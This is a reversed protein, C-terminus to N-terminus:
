VRSYKLLKDSTDNGEQIAGILNDFKMEMLSYIDGLIKSSNDSTSTTITEAAAAPTYALKDLISNPTLRKILETGDLKATYGTNPGSAVGELYGSVKPTKINAINSAGETTDGVTPVSQMTTPFISGGYVKSEPSKGIKHQWSRDTGPGWTKDDTAASAFDKQRKDVNALYAVAAGEITQQRGTTPGKIYNESPQNNNAKTGTVSQFQNKETLAGMIGQKNDRARNLISGMIMAQEQQNGKGGSAEAHTAKILASYEEKTIPKGFYNEISKIASDTGGTTSIPQNASQNKLLETYYKKDRASVNPDKLAEEAAKIEDSSLKSKSGAMNQTSSGSGTPAKKEILPNIAQVLKDMAIRADITSETLANRALQAKDQGVIDGKLGESAKGLNKGAKATAEALTNGLRNVMLPLTVSTMGLSKAVDESAAANLSFNKLNQKLGGFLQKDVEAEDFKGKMFDKHVKNVDVGNRILVASQDNVIGNMGIIGQFALLLQPDGIQTAYKIAKDHGEQELKLAAAKQFQGAQEAEYIKISLETQKIQFQYQTKAAAMSTQLEETNRGTLSSMLLLNETYELSAKQLKGSTIMQQTIIAGSAQQQKIYAGQNAMLDEQSVGLSQFAQRQESTVATLKAFQTIGEGVTGGLSLLGPGAAAAAKTFVQLNDSTLGARHGMELIQSSSFAGAAGFAAMQDSAKLVDDTQKVVAVAAATVANILLGAIKGFPGFASAADAAANGMSQIGSSFKGFTKDSSFFAGGLQKLGREASKL